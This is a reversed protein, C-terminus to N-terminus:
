VIGYAKKTIRTVASKHLGYGVMLKRAMEYPINNAKARSAIEAISPVSESVNVLLPQDCCCQQPELYKSTSTFTHCNLCQYLHNEFISTDYTHFQAIRPAGIDEMVDVWMDGHLQDPDTTYAYDLCLQACIIHASEHHVVEQTFDDGYYDLMDKNFVLRNSRLYAEGADTGLSEFELAPVILSTGYLSGCKSFISEVLQVVNNNM